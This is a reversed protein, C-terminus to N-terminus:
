GPRGVGAGLQGARMAALRVHPDNAKRRADDQQVNDSMKVKLDDETYEPHEARVVDMAEKEAKKIDMEHRTEASEFLPCNDM